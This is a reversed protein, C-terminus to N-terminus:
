RRIKQWGRQQEDEWKRYAIAAIDAATSFLEQTDIEPFLIILDQHLGARVETFYTGDRNKTQQLIKYMRNLLTNKIESQLEFM